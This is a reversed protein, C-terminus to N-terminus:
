WKQNLWPDNNNIIPEKETTTDVKGTSLNGWPDTVEVKKENESGNFLSTGTQTWPDNLPTTPSKTVPNDEEWLNISEEKARDNEESELVRLEHDVDENHTEIAESIKAITEVKAGDFAKEIISTNDEVEHKDYLNDISRIHSEVSATSGPQPNFDMTEPITRDALLTPKNEPEAPKLPETKCPTYGALPDEDGFPFGYDVQDATMLKDAMEDIEDEVKTRMDYVAKVDGLGCIDQTIKLRAQGTVVSILTEESLGVLSLLAKLKYYDKM